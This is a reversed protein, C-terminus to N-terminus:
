RHATVGFTGDIRVVLWTQVSTLEVQKQSKITTLDMAIEFRNKLWLPVECIRTGRSAALQSLPGAPPTSSSSKGNTSTAHLLEHCLSTGEPKASPAAIFLGGRVRGEPVAIKLPSPGQLGLGQLISLFVRQYTIGTLVLRRQQEVGSLTTM